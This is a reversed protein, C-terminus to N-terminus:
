NAGKSIVQPINLGAIDKWGAARQKVIDKKIRYQRDRSEIDPNCIILNQITDLTWKAFHNYRRYEPHGQVGFFCTERYFFAEIDKGVGKQFDKDNLSRLTSKTSTAVIEMGNKQNDMAMQHHVSSVRPIVTGSIRDYMGHDGYHENVDQYLKGGHMVTGFQAGRCVGLMPIGEKRCFDFLKLDSIDRERNVRTSSHPEEGYLAPTVDPGGTFVVLDAEEPTAARKCRARSFMEAFQREEYSSGEVYIDMWLEPYALLHDRVVSVKIGEAAGSALAEDSEAIAVGLVQATITSKNAVAEVTKKTDGM